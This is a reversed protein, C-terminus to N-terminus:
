GKGKVKTNPGGPMTTNGRRVVHYTPYVGYDKAMGIQGVYECRFGAAREAFALAAFAESAYVQGAPTVPELRATRSVHTGVYDRRGTVPNTCVYVPGVHLATRLEVNKKFGLGKWDTGAMMDRLELAFQAAEALTAFVLYLGDGWTSVHLPERGPSRALDGVQGLVHQVFMPVEAEGLKSFGTADAFLIAVLQRSM